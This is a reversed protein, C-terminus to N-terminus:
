KEEEFDGMQLSLYRECGLEKIQHVPAELWDVHNEEDKLLVVL